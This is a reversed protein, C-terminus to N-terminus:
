DMVGQLIDKQSVGYGSAKIQSKLKQKRRTRKVAVTKKKKNGDLQKDIQNLTARGHQIYAKVLNPKYNGSFLNMNQPYQRAFYKGKSKELKDNIAGYIVADDTHMYVEGKGKRFVPESRSKIEKWGKKIAYARMGQRVQENFNGWREITDVM